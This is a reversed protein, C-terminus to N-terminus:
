RGCASRGRWVVGFRAWSPGTMTLLRPTLTWCRPPLTLRRLGQADREVRSANTAPHNEERL